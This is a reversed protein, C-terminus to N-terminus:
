KSLKIAQVYTEMTNNAMSTITGNTLAFEYAREVIGAFKSYDYLWKKIEIYIANVDEAPIGVCCNEMDKFGGVKTRIVPVKMFFAEMVALPFGERRSPQIMIDAVSFLDASNMWGAFFFYKDMKYKTILSKLVHYYEVNTDGTMIVRIREREKETLKAVAEILLDLGKVPNLRGHAVITTIENGNITLGFKSKFFTEKLISKPEQPCILKSNDVGNIIKDLNENKIKLETHMWVKAEASIAIAKHGYYGFLRKITNNPYPVTHCTWVTAKKGWIYQYLKMFFAQRRHNCHVVDVNFRKIM